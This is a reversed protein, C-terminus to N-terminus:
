HLQRAKVDDGDWTLAADGRSWVPRDGITLEGHIYAALPAGAAGLLVMSAREPALTLSFSAGSRRDQVSVSTPRDSESLLTYLTAEPFVRPWVLTGSPADVTCPSLGAAREEPLTAVLAAYLDAVAEAGDSLEVPYATQVIRGAGLGAERFTDASGAFLWRDVVNLSEGSYSLALTGGPVDQLCAHATIPALTGGLGFRELRGTEHFHDDALPGSLLLTAGRRVADLLDRWAAETLGRPYPAVILDARGLAATANEGVVRCPLHLAYALARVARQTAALALPQLVSYLLSQPQLVVVRAPIARGTAHRALVQALPALLRTCNLEPKESGDARLAGIAVENDDAMHTNTNWLWQVFGAGAGLALALKRELLRARNAEDRRSDEDLQEYQMIGTEQVLVPKGPVTACLQDWLIADNLWWTHICTHDIADGHFWPSPRGDVAGEDQGVTVLQDSGCARITARMDGAWDAFADQSFLHWDHAMLPKGGQWRQRYVLEDPRPPRVDGWPGAEEPAANWAALLASYSPYHSQLWRNWAAREHRDYNPRQQFLHTPDFQSPENILDWSLDPVHRFRRVFAAIFERQRARMEPDLYPNGLGFADPQFAFFCFQVAIGHKRASHLYAEFARLPDEQVVGPEKMVQEFGTWLGTRVFNVGAAAMSAFAQEWAAPNPQLLYQRHTDSAMYTTGVVPMPLGDRELFEPGASLTAGERLLAEDRCWYGTVRQALTGAASRLRLFVRYLGPHLPSPLPLVAHQPAAGLPLPLSAQHLLTGAPDEVRLNVVADDFRQWSHGHLVIAPAEGLAVTALVPRAEFQLTGRLAIRECASYLRVAEESSNFGPEAEFNLMVWRGGAFANHYHDLLVVPAALVRGDASIAQVLPDLQGCSVGVSGLRKYHDEDSLRVMLSWCREARWGGGISALSPSLPRLRLDRSPVPWAQNILLRKQYAVTPRGTTFGQRDRYVPVHFPSGGLTLLGGGRALHEYIAPWADFPFASGYPLVLLPPEDAALAGALGDVDVFLPRTLAAELMPQPVPQTDYFPFDDQWFVVTRRM